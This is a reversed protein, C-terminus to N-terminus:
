PDLRPTFSAQEPEVDDAELLAYLALQGVLRAYAPLVDAPRPLQFAAPDPVHLLGLERAFVRGPDLLHERAELLQRAGEPDREPPREVIRRCWADRIADDDSAAAVGLVERPDEIAVGSDNIHIPALCIAPDAALSPLRPEFGWSTTAGRDGGGRGKRANREGRTRQRRKEARNRQQKKGKGM